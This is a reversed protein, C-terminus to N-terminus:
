QHTLLDNINFLNGQEKFTQNIQSETLLEKVPTKDFVSIGLIQMIEYVSLTSKLAYKIQAVILYTCIAIWIHVNVANESHGWLTKITLNQKIWKFFVEIQWRNRYLRAVELASVDFNNSIFTLMIDKEDDYYEIMRLNEPYLLKSKPGKLKITKDGRLGTTEDINFSTELVRYVMTEKARTVFFADAKNMKYLSAFDIYAKDMLYIADPQPVIVDLVNSDHYRGDTILIFTPISGRLDLLTHIKIAGRSYKGQAWAFLKLSLSVTTSDLAFVDNDIDVKPIPSNAYM